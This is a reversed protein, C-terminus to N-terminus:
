RGLRFPLVPWERNDPTPRCHTGDLSTSYDWVPGHATIMDLATALLLVDDVTTNLGASM